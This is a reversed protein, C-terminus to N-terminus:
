NGTTTSQTATNFYNVKTSNKINKYDDVKYNILTHKDGKVKINFDVYFMTGQAVKYLPYNNDKYFNGVANFISSVLQIGAITLYTSTPLSEINTAKTTSVGSTSANVVLEEKEASAKQQAMYDVSTNYAIENTKIAMDAILTSIKTDNIFTALNLNTQDITLIVGNEIPIKREKNRLYIPRGILALKDYIPNFSVFMQSSELGYDNEEFQCDLVSYAQTREVEVTNPLTCYGSLNYIKEELEKQMQQQQNAAQKELEKQHADKNKALFPLSQALYTGKNQENNQKQQQMVYNFIVADEYTDKNDKTSSTTQVKSSANSDIELNGANELGGESILQKELEQKTLKGRRGTTTEMAASQSLLLLSGLLTLSVKQIM